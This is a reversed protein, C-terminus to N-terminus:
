SIDFLHIINKYRPDYFRKDKLRPDGKVIYKKQIFIFVAFKFDRHENFEWKWFVLSVM